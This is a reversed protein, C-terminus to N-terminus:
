SNKEEEPPAPSSWTPILKSRIQNNEDLHWPQDAKPGKQDKLRRQWAAYEPEMSKLRKDAEDCARKIDALLAKDNIAPKLTTLTAASNKLSIISDRLKAWHGERTKYPIAEEREKAVAEETRGEGVDADPRGGKSTQLLVDDISAVLQRARVDAPDRPRVRLNDVLEALKDAAGSVPLLESPKPDKGLGALSRRLADAATTLDAKRPIDTAIVTAAAALVDNVRVRVKDLQLHDPKDLDAGMGQAQQYLGEWTSRAKALAGDDGKKWVQKFAKNESEYENNFKTFEPTPSKKFRKGLKEMSSRTQGHVRELGRTVNDLKELDGLLADGQEDIRTYVARLALQEDRSLTGLKRYTAEQDDFTKRLVGLTVEAKTTGDERSWRNCKKLIGHVRARMENVSLRLLNDSIPVDTASTQQPNVEGHIAWVQGQEVPRLVALGYRVRIGALLPKLVKESAGKASFRKMASLGAAMGKDLRKQKGEPSDDGGLVKGKVWAKGAAVKAKVKGSIGKIGRIIPGALKLGTKIVFDLAKNVPKQLTEVIQRIKQGIGGLGIVSALFGIIIPVM